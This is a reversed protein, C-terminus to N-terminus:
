PLGQLGRFTGGMHLRGEEWSSMFVAPCVASKRFARWTQQLPAFLGPLCPGSFRNGSSPWDPSLFSSGAQGQIATCKELLGQPKGSSSSCEGRAEQRNPGTGSSSLSGSPGSAPSM